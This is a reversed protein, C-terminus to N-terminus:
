FATVALESGSAMAGGHPVGGRRAGQGRETDWHHRLTIRKVYTTKAEVPSTWFAEGVGAAMSPEGTAM